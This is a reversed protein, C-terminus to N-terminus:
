PPPPHSERGWGSYLRLSIPLLSIAVWITLKNAGGIWNLQKVLYIRLMKNTQRWIIKVGIHHKCFHLVMKVGFCQECVKWPFVKKKWDCCIETVNIPIGCSFSFTSLGRFVSLVSSYLAQFIHWSRQEWPETPWILHLFGYGLHSDLQLVVCLCVVVKLYNVLFLRWGSEDLM